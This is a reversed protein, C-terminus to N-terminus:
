AQREEAIATEEDPYIKFIKDMRTLDFLSQVAPNIGCFSITGKGGLGRFCSIIAGLGSSDVFQTKELNLLIKKHGKSIFAMLADKFKGSNDAVLREKDFRVILLDDIIKHDPIM